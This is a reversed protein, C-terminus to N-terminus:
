RLAKAAVRRYVEATREAVSDWNFTRAWDPGGRAVAARAAPAQGLHEAREDRALPKASRHGVRENALNQRVEPASVTRNM